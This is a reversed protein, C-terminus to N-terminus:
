SVTRWSRWVQASIAGFSQAHLPIATGPLGAQRARLVHMGDHGSACAVIAPAPTRRGPGSSIFQNTYLTMLFPARISAGSCACGPSEGARGTLSGLFRVFVADGTVSAVYGPALTGEALDGFAGPLAGGAGLLSAKRTVRLM